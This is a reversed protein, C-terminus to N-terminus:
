RETVARYIPAHLASQISKFTKLEPAAQKVPPLQEEEEFEQEEYVPAHATAPANRLLSSTSLPRATAFWFNALADKTRFCVAAAREQAEGFNAQSARLVLSTTSRATLAVRTLARLSTLPRMPRTFM